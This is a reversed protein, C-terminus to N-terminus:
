HSYEMAETRVVHAVLAVCAIIAIAGLGLVAVSDVTRQADRVRRGGFIVFLTVKGQAAADASRLFGTCKLTGCHLLDDCCCFIHGLGVTFCGIVLHITAHLSDLVGQDFM